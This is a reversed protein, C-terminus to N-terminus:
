TLVLLVLCMVTVLSTSSSTGEGSRLHGLDKRSKREKEELLQIFLYVRRLLLVHPAGHFVIGGFIMEGPEMGLALALHPM